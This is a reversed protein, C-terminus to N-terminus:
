RNRSRARRAFWSGAVLGTGLLAATGPEPVVQAFVVNDVGVNDSTMGLGTLDFVLQLTSASIGDPGLDVTTHGGSTSGPVFTSGQSFLSGGGGDLIEFGPLIQGGASYSALDFGFLVADFGAGATLILTLTTDSDQDNFYVGSLDGYGTTWLRPLEGPTGYAAVVDPTFGLGDDVFGYSHGAQPSGAVNDGYDEPVPIFNTVGGSVDFTLITSAPAAAPIQLALVLVISGFVIRSIRGPRSARQM